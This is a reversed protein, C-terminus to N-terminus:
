RRQVKPNWTELHHCQTASRRSRLPKVVCGLTTRAAPAGQTFAPAHTPRHLRELTSTIPPPGVGLTRKRRDRGLVANDSGGPGHVQLLGARLILRCLGVAAAVTNDESRLRFRMRMRVDKLVASAAPRIAAAAIDDAEEIRAAGGGSTTSVGGSEGSSCRCCNSNGAPKWMSSSALSGSMPCGIFRLKSAAPRRHTVCETSYG